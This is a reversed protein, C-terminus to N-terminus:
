SHALVLVRAVVAAILLFTLLLSIMKEQEPSLRSLTLGLTVLLREILESLRELM